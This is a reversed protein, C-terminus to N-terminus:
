IYKQEVSDFDQLISKLNTIFIQSAERTKFSQIWYLIYSQPTALLADHYFSNKLLVSLISLYDVFKKVLTPRFSTPWIPNELPLKVWFSCLDEYIDNLFM